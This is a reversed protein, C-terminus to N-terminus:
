SPRRPHTPPKYSNKANDRLAAARLGEVESKLEEREADAILLRQLIFFIRENQTQADQRQFYIIALLIAPTGLEAVQILLQLADM